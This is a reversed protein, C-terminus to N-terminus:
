PRHALLYLWDRRRHLRLVDVVQWGADGLMDRLPGARHHVYWRPSASGYRAAPEWSEGDGESVALHLAGGRRTVRAFGALV